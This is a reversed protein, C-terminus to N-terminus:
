YLKNNKQKMEDMNKLLKSIEQEKAKISLKQGTIINQSEILKVNLSKNKSIQESIIDSAQTDKSLKAQLIQKM